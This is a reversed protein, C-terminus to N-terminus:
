GSGLISCEIVGSLAVYLPAQGAGDPQVTVVDAGVARLEGTLVEGEGHLADALDICSLLQLVHDGDGIWFIQRLWERGPEDVLRVRVHAQFSIDAALVM